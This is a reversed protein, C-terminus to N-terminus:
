INNQPSAAESFPQKCICRANVTKLNHAQLIFAGQYDKQQMFEQNMKMQNLFNIIFQVKLDM